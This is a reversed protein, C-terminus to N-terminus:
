NEYEHDDGIYKLGRRYLYQKLKIQDMDKCKGNLLKKILKIDYGLDELLIM